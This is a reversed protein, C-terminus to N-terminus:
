GLFEFIPWYLCFCANVYRCCNAPKEILQLLASVSFADGSNCEWQRLCEWSGDSPPGRNNGEPVEFVAISDEPDCLFRYDSIVSIWQTEKQPSEKPYLTSAKM